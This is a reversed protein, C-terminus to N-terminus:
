PPLPHSTDHAGLWMRQKYADRGKGEGERGRGGREQVRDKHQGHHCKGRETQVHRATLKAHLSSSAISLAKDADSTGSTIHSQPRRCGDLM